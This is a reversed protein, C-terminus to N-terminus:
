HLIIHYEVQDEIKIQNHAKSVFTKTLSIKERVCKEDLTM